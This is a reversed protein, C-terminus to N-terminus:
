VSSVYAENKTQKKTTYKKRGSLQEMKNFIRHIPSLKRDVVEPVYLLDVANEKFTADCGKGYKKYDEPLILVTKDTYKMKNKKEKLQSCFFAVWKEFVTQTICITCDECIKVNKKKMTIVEDRDEENESVHYLPLTQGDACICCFFNSEKSKRTLFMKQPAGVGFAMIFREGRKEQFGFEDANFVFSPNINEVKNKLENCFDCLVDNTPEPLDRSIKTKRLDLPIDDFSLTVGDCCDEVYCIIANETIAVRQAALSEALLVIEAIVQQKTKLVLTETNDTTVTTDNEAATETKSSDLSIVEKTIDLVRTIEDYTAVPCLSQLNHIQEELSKSNKFAERETARKFMERLGIAVTDFHFVAKISAM